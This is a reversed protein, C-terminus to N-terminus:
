DGKGACNGGGQVLCAAYGPRTDLLFMVRAAFATDAFDSFGHERGRPPPGPLPDNMRSTVRM